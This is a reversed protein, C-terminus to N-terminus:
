AYSNFMMGSYASPTYPSAFATAPNKYAVITKNTYEMPNLSIQRIKGLVSETFDKLSEFTKNLDAEEMNERLLDENISIKGDDNNFSLGLSDLENRYLESINEMDTLIRNAKPHSEVYSTTHDIFSNYGSALTQIQDKLADSNKKLGITATEGETSGIGQLTIEYTKEVSFTNSATLHLNGNLKITAGKSKATTQDLGFYDVTGSAKSTKDDSISFVRKGDPMSGTTQSKIVLASGGEGDELVSANLNITQRNILKALRDQVGRNTEGENISFQFEYNLNNVSVDFSYTDPSLDVLDNKLYIGTNEQPAALDMVEIEFSPGEEPAIEDGIYEATAIDPNSSSALRKNAITEFDFRSVSAITDRLSLAEEKVGVAFEQVSKSSDIIALPALKNQKVMSNYVMRLESKKHTDYPSSAKSAYTSMYHNYVTALAAVNAM